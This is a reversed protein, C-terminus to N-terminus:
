SVDSSHNLPIRLTSAPPTAQNNATETTFGISAPYSSILVAIFWVATFPCNQVPQCISPKIHRPQIWFLSCCLIKVVSSVLYMLENQSVIEELRHWERVLNNCEAWTQEIQVVDGIRNIEAAPSYM